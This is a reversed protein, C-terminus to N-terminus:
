NTANTSDGSIDKEYNELTQLDDFDENALNIEHTVNKEDEFFNSVDERMNMSHNDGLYEHYLSQTIDVGYLAVIRDKEDTLEKKYKNFKKM